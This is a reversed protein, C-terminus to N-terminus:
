RGLAKNIEAINSTLRARVERLQKMAEMKQERTMTEDREIQRERASIKNLGDFLKYIYKKYALVDKNRELYDMTAEVDGTQRLRSFSRNVEDVVRFLEYAQAVSKPSRSEADLLFSKIAPLQTIDRPLRDEAVGMGEMLLGVGQMFYSGMPGGYGSIIQDIIIPSVGEFRGTTFNYKIPIGGLMMAVSSTRSDYQLEPTLRAKGESILPLDTYFDYNVLAELGPIMAQPIPNLGFTSTFESWFFKAMERGSTQGTTAKYLEQPITSFLLGTEFPKPIAAFYGGEVGFWKLPILLNGNKVYDPLEEYDEDGELMIELAVSLAMLIAGRYLFKKGLNADREGLQYGTATMVGAKGAQYLVDLGQIRANLFPIIQTLIQLFSNSGRRSFNMIEIARFAAEAESMGQKIASEYVAIRTAADSAESWVGLKDWASMVLGQMGDISAVNMVNVPLARRRIIAAMEAPSRMALDHSGVVGRGVLAQFSTSNNLADRFGKVTGIFPTIDEGSTVWTSLTDRLLNRVMFVPDRTISERLVTAPMVGLLKMARGMDMSDNAGLSTVLMPDKVAFRKQVGNERFFMVQESEGQSLDPKESAGLLRAEGMDKALKFAKNAAINRTIAGMWFNVNTLIVLMPDEILEGRESGKYERIKIDGALKSPMGPVLQEEFIERYFGYYDMQQTFKALEADTIRGADRAATILKKNFRQYKEYAEVIEPYDRQVSQITTNIYVDDLERPVPKGAAKLGIARKATAYSKFVVRKDRPEGTVPDVPGPELMTRFIDILKDADNRVAVTASQIDGPRSYEIVPPGQMVTAATLQSSRDAMGLAVLASQTAERRQFNGTDKENATKELFEIYANKDVLSMRRNINARTGFYGGRMDIQGYVTNLTKAQTAPSSFFDFISQVISEKREPVFLTRNKAEVYPPLPAASFRSSTAAGEEFENFISKVQVPDFILYSDQAEPYKAKFDADSLEKADISFQTPDTQPKFGEYRNLYVIGDIGRSKLLDQTAKIQAPTNLPLASIAKSQELSILGELHLRKAVASPIWKGTDKMRLPNQMSLYVPFIQDSRGTFRVDEEWDERSMQSQPTQVFENAQDPTGFHAGLESQTTEFAKFKGQTGHYVIKPTGDPNRVKSNRFWRAFEETNLAPAASFRGGPRTRKVGSADAGTGGSGTRGAAQRLGVQRVGRTNLAPGGVGYILSSPTDKWFPSNIGKAGPDALELVRKRAENATIKGNSHLRWIDDIAQVNKGQGKFRPKYLGRVAEWTISQMERPLVGRLKAAERYADAYIAYMGHVGTISSNRTRYTMGKVSTGFNHHVEVSKGALARMLAAAVAHTDITVSGDKSKPSIINNYFNRIKHKDGLLTDINEKTGDEIANAAKGIETFSGWAVNSSKGKGTTAIAGKDGEPTIINYSRSNNVEDYVRIFISKALTADGSVISTAQEANFVGALVENHKRALFNEFNKSKMDNLTMGRMAQLMPAYQAISDISMAYDFMSDDFPVNRKTVAIDIAREALSVNQFWDKQPSLGALVAAVTTDPLNYKAALGDTIKRAGDYWLKARQRLIPDMKDHLWLLNDVVHKKFRKLTQEPNEGPKAPFGPYSNVININHEFVGPELKMSSVDVLLNNLLSAGAKKVSTPRRQSIRFPSGGTKNVSSIGPPPAGGTEWDSTSKNPDYSPGASFRAGEMAERGVGERAGVEGSEISQFIEQYKNSKLIRFISRFFETIRNFLGRIQVPAKQGKVWDKYMEAVAEEIVADPDAYIPAIPQGNPTYVAQAKDLYTYKRGPVNTSTAAKSLMNWEAPRIVGQDRLVHIIEHDLTEVLENVAEEVTMNPRLIGTSLDVISKIGNPTKEMRAQGRVLLNRDTSILEELKVEANKPVKGSLRDKLATYIGAYRDITAQNYDRLIPGEAEAQALTRRVVPAEKLQGISPRPEEPTIAEVPGESPEVPEAIAPAGTIPAEASVPEVAGIPAEPAIAEPVVAEPATAMKGRPLYSARSRPTAEGLDAAPEPKAAAVFDNLKILQKDLDAIEEDTAKKVLTESVNQRAAERKIVDPRSMYAALGEKKAVLSDRDAIIEDTTQYEKGNIKVPFVSPLDAPKRVTVNADTRQKYLGVAEEAEAVDLFDGVTNGGPTRITFRSIGDFDDEIIEVDGEVNVKRLEEAARSIEGQRQAQANVAAERGLDEQLQRYPRLKRGAALQVLGEVFSGAFAGTGANSLLDQGIEVNPNYVGYEVLDNAIGSAVEQAGEAIGAKTIRALRSKVIQEVIPAKAVPVKSLLTTIPGFFRGIPAAELSGILGDLRQAALQDEESIEMGSAIQNRIKESRAEAGLAVGQAAATATGVRGAAAATRGAFAAGKAAASGPVLFSAVSGLAQAAQQAATPDKTPDIGLTEELYKRAEESFQGATTQAAEEAPYILSAIGGPINTLGTGFGYALRGLIGSEDPGAPTDPTPAAVAAPPPAPFNKQFFASVAEDSTGDAFSFARGLEPVYVTRPM